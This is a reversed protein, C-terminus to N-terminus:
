CCLLWGPDPTNLLLETMKWLVWLTPIEMMIQNMPAMTASEPTMRYMSSPRVM